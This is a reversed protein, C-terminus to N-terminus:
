PTFQVRWFKVRYEPSWERRHWKQRSHKAQFVQMTGWCYWGGTALLEGDPSWQLTNIPWYPAGDDWDESHAAFQAVIHRRAIDWIWVDGNGGAQALYQSDPSFAIKHPIEDPIRLSSKLTHTNTDYLQICDSSVALALSQSDPSYTLAGVGGSASGLAGIWRANHDPSSVDWIQVIGQVSHCDTALSIGDPSVALLHQDSPAFAPKSCSESHKLLCPTASMPSGRARMRLPLRMSRPACRRGSRRTPARAWGACSPKSSRSRRSLQRATPRTPRCSSCSAARRPSRM